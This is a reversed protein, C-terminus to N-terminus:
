FRAEVLTSSSVLTTAAWTQHSHFLDEPRVWQLEFEHQPECKEGLEGAYFAAYIAQCYGGTEFFQVAHAFCHGLRVKCGLEERVERHIAEAATEAPEIGGGPLFLRGSEERVAAVLGGPNVLVLCACARTKQPLADNRTGFAPIDTVM